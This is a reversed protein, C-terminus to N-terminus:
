MMMQNKNATRRLPKVAFDKHKMINMRLINNETDHIYSDGLDIVRQFTNNRQDTMRAYLIKNHSDIRAKIQKEQILTAVEKELDVVSTNFVKAMRNMDVSTFPSVYQILSRSRIKQYLPQVHDRLHIDFVLEPLLRDLGTLASTYRSEYFDQILERVLPVLELFNKFSSNDLLNYLERRDFTALATLGAYIAIDQLSIVDNFEDGLSVDCELLKKAVTKYKKSELNYLASAVAIKSVAVKDQGEAIDPTQEAKQVYQNITNFNGTEIGIKIVSLCMHIIHKSSTCYDRTRLYSKFANQLEGRAFYFDGLENHGMRISEKILNTRFSNLEIELKELTKAAEQDVSSVWAEDYKENLDNAFKELVEKYLQTNIGTKLQKVALRAAESRLEKSNEAAFILRKVKTLGTYNSIYQELDFSSM